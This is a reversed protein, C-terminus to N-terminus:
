PKLPINTNAAILATVPTGPLIQAPDGKLTRAGSSSAVPMLLLKKAGDHSAGVRTKTGALSVQVGQIDISVLTFTVVGPQSGRGASDVASVRAMALTGQPALVKGQVILDSALALTLKDGVKASESDVKSTFVLPLEANQPLEVQTPSIEKPAPRSAAKSDADSVTYDAEAITSATDGPVIAIAQITESQTLAIPGTYLASQTTPAWGDTTYFIKADRSSKLKVVTNAAYTGASISFKPPAAVACCAQDAMKKGNQADLDAGIAPPGNQADARQQALQVQQAYPINGSPQTPDQARASITAAPLIAALFLSTAFRM